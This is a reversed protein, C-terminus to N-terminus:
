EYRCLFVSHCQLAEIREAAGDSRPGELSYPIERTRQITGHMDSKDPNGGFVCGALSFLFMAILLNRLLQSTPHRWAEVTLLRRAEGCEEGTSRMRRGVAAKQQAEEKSIYDASRCAKRAKASLTAAGLM